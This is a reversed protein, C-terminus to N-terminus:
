LLSASWGVGATMAVTVEAGVVLAVASGSGAVAVKWRDPAFRILVDVVLGGVVAAPIFPWSDAAAAFLATPIGILIGFAGFPPAISALLVAIFALAIASLLMAASALDSRVLSDADAPPNEARLYAIRGDTAWTGGGSTLDDTAGPDRSLEREDGGGAAVSWIEGGDPPGRLRRFVIRRGDPSWAPELDDAPDTTLRTAASGDAGMVYLDTNGSRWASFAIRTGDPSWTAGWDSGHDFTLQRDDSGDVNMVFIDTGGARTADFVLRTGDPSFTAARDDGPEDTVREPSGTGDARVRWIDAHTRVPNSSGFEFGTGFLGGGGLGAPGAAAWPGGEPEDTYVIWAGDPSWHPLWQWGPRDVLPHADSGDAAAVWIDAEDPIDVPPRDGLRLRTYALHKGDPSWVPNWAMFGDRAEILRTQHAGDGDMLWIEANAIAPARELWPNAAPHFGGPLGLAALILCASFVAPWRPVDAGFRLASRLPGAAVLILGVVILLRTPALLGEIGTIGVGERWGVDAVLGALLAVVGAGLVGYAPPFASRWGRRQRVARLVLAVAVAALTFLGSYFPVSYISALLDPDAGHLTAWLLLFIAGVMWGGIAVTLWAVRSRTAGVGERDRDTVVTEAVGATVEAPESITAM